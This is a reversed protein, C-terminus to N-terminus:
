PRASRRRTTTPVDSRLLTRVFVRPVDGASHDVRSYAITVGGPSRTVRPVGVVDHAIALPDTDIPTLYRDLRLASVRGAENWVLVHEAGNWAVDLTVPPSVYRKSPSLCRLTQPTTSRQLAFICPTADPSDIDTWITTITDEIGLPDDVVTQAISTVDWVLFALNRVSSSGASSESRPVQASWLRYGVSTLFPDGGIAGAESATVVFGDGFATVHHESISHEMTSTIVFPLGLRGEESMRRGFISEENWVVLYQGGSWAVSVSRVFPAIAVKVPADVAEGDLAYRRAWVSDGADTWVLLCTANGCAIGPTGSPTATRPGTRSRTIVNPQSVRGNVSTEVTIREGIGTWAVHLSSPATVAADTQSPASRTVLLPEATASALADFSAVRSFVDSTAFRGDSWLMINNGNASAFQPAEGFSETIAFPSTDDLRGDNGIRIGVIRHDLNREITLLFEAGDWGASRVEEGISLPFSKEGDSEADYSVVEYTLSAILIREPAFAAVLPRGPPEINETTHLVTHGSVDIAIVATRGNCPSSTCFSQDVGVAFYQGGKSELGGLAPQLPTQFRRLENGDRDTLIFTSMMMPGFTGVLYTNGNSAVGWADGAEHLPKVDGIPKGDADLRRVVSGSVVSYAVLYGIGDSAIQAPGPTTAIPHAFPEAPSGDRDLRTAYLMPGDPSQQRTDIWMAVYDTGNSAVRVASQDGAAPGFVIPSVPVEPGLRVNAAIESRAPFISPM